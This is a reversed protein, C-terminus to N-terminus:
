VGREKQDGKWFKKMEAKAEDSFGSEKQRPILARIANSIKLGVALPEDSGYARVEDSYPNKSVKAAEELAEARAKRLAAALDRILKARPEGVLALWGDWKAVFRRAEDEPTMAEGRAACGVEPFSVQAVRLVTTTGTEESGV